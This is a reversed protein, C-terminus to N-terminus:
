WSFRLSSDAAGPKAASVNASAVVQSAPWAASGNKRKTWV